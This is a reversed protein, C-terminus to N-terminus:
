VSTSSILDVVFRAVQEAGRPDERNIRPLALLDPLSSLWGGSYFQDGSIPLGPMKGEIFSVLQQSERFRSRAVYGFPVGAYYIEALTSYGVKGIVANSANALDPHFYGSRHPLLVLNGDIKVQKSSGPIVFRVDRKAALKELFNYKEEIGGMTILVVQADEPIGLQKRIEHAPTKMKRSVPFTTLDASCPDCIPETQIRFDAANFVRKLYSIHDGIRGDQEAYRQYIWDWTFNEILLSPIGAEGAVAIGMPAIDCIVLVCKLKKIRKALGRIKSSDFPLFHNLRKVTESIDAHLPTRQALGIDTLFSHYGFSGSLSDDFFWLPVTTFIEFYMDPHLQYVAEMVGAARAAHGYGHPSIFYAISLDRPV